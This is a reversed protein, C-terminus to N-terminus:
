GNEAFFGSKSHLRSDRKQYDDVNWDEEEVDVVETSYVCDMTIPKLKVVELMEECNPCLLQAGIRLWNALYFTEGCTPCEARKKSKM